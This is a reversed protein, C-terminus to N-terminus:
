AMGIDDSMFYVSPIGGWYLLVRPTQRICISFFYIPLNIFHKLLPDDLFTDRRPRGGNNQHLLLITLKSKADIIPLKIFDSFFVGM